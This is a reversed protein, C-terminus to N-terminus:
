LLKWVVLTNQTVSLVFMRLNTKKDFQKMEYIIAFPSIYMTVSAAPVFCWKPVEM